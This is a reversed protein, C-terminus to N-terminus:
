SPSESKRWCSGYHHFLSILTNSDGEDEQAERFVWVEPCGEEQDEQGDVCDRYHPVHTHNCDDSDIGLEVGGHVKKEAM